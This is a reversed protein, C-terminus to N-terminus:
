RSEESAPLSTCQARMKWRLRTKELMLVPKRTWTLLFVATFGCRHGVSCLCSSNLEVSGPQASLLVWKERVTEVAM